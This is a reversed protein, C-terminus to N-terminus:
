KKLLLVLAILAVGSLAVYLLTKNDEKKEEKVPYRPAPAPAASRKTFHSRASDSKGAISSAAAKIAASAASKVAKSGLFSGIASTVAGAASGLWSAAGSVLSGLFGLM